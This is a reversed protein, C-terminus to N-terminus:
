RLLNEQFISNLSNAKDIELYGGGNTLCLFPFENIIQSHQSFKFQKHILNRIVQLSGDIITNGRVIVGDIDSVIAPILKKSM